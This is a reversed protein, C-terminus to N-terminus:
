KLGDDNNNQEKNDNNKEGDQNMNPLTNKNGSQDQDKLSEDNVTKTEKATGFVPVFAGELTMDENFLMNGVLFKSLARLGFLVGMIISAAKVSSLSAVTLGLANILAPAFAIGGILLSLCMIGLSATELSKAVKLIRKKQEMAQNDESNVNMFNSYLYVGSAVMRSGFVAAFVIPMFGFGGLVAAAIGLATCAGYLVLNLINGVIGGLVGSLERPDLRRIVGKALFFVGAAIASIKIPVGLGALVGLFSAPAAFLAVGLLILAFGLLIYSIFRFFGPKRWSFRELLKSEEEEKEEEGGERESVKNKAFFRLIEDTARLGFVVALGIGGVSLIPASTVCLAFIVSLVTFGFYLAVEPVRAINKKWRADFFDRWDFHFSGKEKEKNDNSPNANEFSNSQIIVEEKEKEKEEEKIINTKDHINTNIIEIKPKNNEEQM